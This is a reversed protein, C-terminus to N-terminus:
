RTVELFAARGEKVLERKGGDLMKEVRVMVPNGVAFNMKVGRTTPVRDSVIDDLKSALRGETTVVYLGLPAGRPGYERPDEVILMDHMIISGSERKDEWKGFSVRKAVFQMRGSSGDCGVPSLCAVLALIASAFRLHPLLSAVM